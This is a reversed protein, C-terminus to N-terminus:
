DKKLYLEQLKKFFERHCDIHENKFDYFFPEVDIIKKDATSVFQENGKTIVRYNDTEEHEFISM